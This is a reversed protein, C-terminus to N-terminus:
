FELGFEIDTFRIGEDAVDAGGSRSVSPFMYYTAAPETSPIDGATSQTAGLVGNIYLRDASAPDHEILIHVRDDDVLNTSASVLEQSGNTGYSALNINAGNTQMGLGHAALNGITAAAIIQLRITLNTIDTGRWIVTFAIFFKKGWNITNPDATGVFHTGYYAGATSAHTAATHVYLEDESKEIAGSGSVVNTANTAKFVGVMMERRLARYFEYTDVGVESNLYLKGRTAQGQNFSSGRTANSM